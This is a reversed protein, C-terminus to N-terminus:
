SITLEHPGAAVQGIVSANFGLRRVRKAIASAYYPASVIVLGIGMNFVRYMEDTEVGGWEELLDFIPQRKWKAPSIKAGCSEPLIRVVNGPLGGGTIHAIGKIVKKVTYHELITRVVGSYIHTPKLLEEGVTSDLKSVEKDLAIKEKRLIKRVLSFGNSHIGNSSVGIVADDEAVSAPDFMAERDAIGVAFGALDYLKGKYFGPMEATEGGVLACGAARCGDVVGKMVEILKEESLKSSAVYDLFFLPTAGTCVLDNVSMAVLDIGVTDHKDLADAITLKTGVGDTCSVLVPSRMKRAFLPHSPDLSFLGAFGGPCDIIEPGFTKRAMKSVRRAFDDGAEIDVGADKYTLKKKAM